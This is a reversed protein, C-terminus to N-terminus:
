SFWTIGKCLVLLLDLNQYAGGEMFRQLANLADRAVDRQISEKMVPTLFREHATLVGKGVKAMRSYLVASVTVDDSATIEGM